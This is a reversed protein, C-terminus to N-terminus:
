GSSHLMTTSVWHAYWGLMGLKPPSGLSCVMPTPGGRVDFTRACAQLLAASAAARAPLGSAGGSHRGSVKTPRRVCATGLSPPWPTVTMTGKPLQLQGFGSLLQALQLYLPRTDMLMVFADRAVM